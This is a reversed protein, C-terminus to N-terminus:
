RVAPTTLVAIGPRLEDFSVKESHLDPKKLAVLEPQSGKSPSRSRALTLKENSPWSHSLGAMDSM